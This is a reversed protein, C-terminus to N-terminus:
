WCSIRLMRFPAFGCFLERNFQRGSEREPLCVEETAGPFVISEYIGVGGSRLAPGVTQSAKVLHTLDPRNAQDVPMPVTVSFVQCANLDQLQHSCRLHHAALLKDASCELIHDHGAQPEAVRAQNIDFGLVHRHNGYEAALPVGVYDLGIIAITADSFNMPLLDLFIDEQHIM